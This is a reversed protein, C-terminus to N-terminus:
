VAPRPGSPEPPAPESAFVASWQIRGTLQMLAFLTLIGLVTITLGTYGDYFHAVGFGVQYLLQAVGAELLAFRAGVVLRLYSVALLVSVASAVGPWVELWRAKESGSLRATNV